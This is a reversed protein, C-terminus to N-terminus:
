DARINAERIIRGYVDYQRRLLSGFQNGCAGAVSFGLASLKAAAAPERMADTFWRALETQM